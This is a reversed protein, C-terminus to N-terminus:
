YNIKLLSDLPNEYFFETQVITDSQPNAKLWYQCFESLDGIFIYPHICKFKGRHRFSEDGDLINIFFVGEKGRGDLLFQEQCRIFHYVERLSRTQVGGRGCIFKLNVYCKVGRWVFKVDFDETYDFGDLLKLPNKVKLLQKQIMHLREGTGTQLPTQVINKLLAIQYKECENRKGDRYWQQAQRWEKTQLKSPSIKFLRILM